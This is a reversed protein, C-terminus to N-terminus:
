RAPLALGRGALPRVWADLASLVAPDFAKGPKGWHALSDAQSTTALFAHDSTPLTVLRATGPRLANVHATLLEHDLVNVLFDNAGVLVLTPAGAKAWAAPLNLANVQHWFALARGAYLAGGADFVEDVTARLAPSREAIKAPPLKEVLFATLVASTRTIEDHVAAASTGSLLSQRRQNELSYEMWTRFGTGAVAVGALKTEGALVPAWLGGMSHGFVFVKSPDVDPRAMLAKLAQRYGDLEQEFDVETGPGGESDGVGPKDVRMTVFGGRAFAGVIQSYANTDTLPQDISGLTVGQIFLLAPRKDGAVPAPLPLSTLTRLRGRLSRVAAYEVRYSATPAERAREVLTGSVELTRGDRQVTIRGPAGGPKGALWSLVQPLTAVAQGDLAAITDGARLGLSQASLGPLVRDITLGSAFAAGLQARRPLEDARALSAAALLTAAALLAARRV